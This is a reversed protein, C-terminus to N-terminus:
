RLGPGPRHRLGEILFRYFGELSQFQRKSEGPSRVRIVLHGPRREEISVSLHWRKERRM